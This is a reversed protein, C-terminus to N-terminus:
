VLGEATDLLAEFEGAWKNDAAMRLRRLRQRGKAGQRELALRSETFAELHRTARYLLGSTDPIEARFVAVDAAVRSWPEPAPVDNTWGDRSLEQVRRILAELRWSLLKATEDERHEPDM